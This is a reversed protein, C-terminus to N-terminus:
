APGADVRGRFLLHPSALALGRRGMAWRVASKLLGIPSRRSFDVFATRIVSVDEFGGLALRISREDFSALHGWRHFVEGCRPCAVQQAGIDENYPVTGLFWGGPKLVRRIESLGAACDEASLHELVESAIVADFGGDEFPQAEIRGARADIGLRALDTTTAPDPDLASVRWGRGVLARELYGDGVGVTLVAAAPPLPLRSLVRVLRDLRPPAGSFFEPAHGQYYSWIRDQGPPDPEDVVPM